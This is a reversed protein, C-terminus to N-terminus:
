KMKRIQKILEYAETIDRFRVTANKKEEENAANYRDPHYRKVLARYAKRVADDTATPTLGLEAYLEKLKDSPLDHASLGDHDEDTSDDPSSYEYIRQREEDTLGDDGFIGGVLQIFGWIIAGIAVVGGAFIDSKFSFYTVAIGATLWILGTMANRNALQRSTEKIENEEEGLSQFDFNGAVFWIGNLSTETVPTDPDINLKMMQKASRPGYERGDEKYFFQYTGGELRLTYSNHSKTNDTERETDERCIKAFDFATATRWRESEIDDTVPTNDPLNLNLMELATYPGCVEEGQMDAPSFADANVRTVIFYYKAEM